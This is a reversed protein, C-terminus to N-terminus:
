AEAPIPGLWLMPTRGPPQIAAAPWRGYRTRYIAIADAIPTDGTFALWTEGRSPATPPLLPLQTTM